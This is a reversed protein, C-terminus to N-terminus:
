RSAFREVRGEGDIRCTGSRDGYALVLDFGGEPRPDAAYSVIEDPDAQWAKAAASRCAAQPAAAVGDFETTRPDNLREVTCGALLVSVLAFRFPRSTM